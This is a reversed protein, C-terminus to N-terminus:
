HPKEHASVYITMLLYVLEGATDNFFSVPSLLWVANTM